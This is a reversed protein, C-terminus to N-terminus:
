PPPLLTQYSPHKLPLLIIKGTSLVFIKTINKRPPSTQNALKMSFDIIVIKRRTEQLSISEEEQKQHQSNGSSLLIFLSLM